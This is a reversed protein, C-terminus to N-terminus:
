LGHFLLGNCLVLEICKMYLGQLTLYPLTCTFNDRHKKKFQAGHWSPMNPSHLYLEVCEQGQCTYAFIYINVTLCKTCGTAMDSRNTIYFQHHHHHHHHHHHYLLLSLPLWKAPLLPNCCSDQNQSGKCWHVSSSPLACRLAGAPARVHHRGKRM